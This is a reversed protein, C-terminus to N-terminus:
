KDRNSPCFCGCRYRTEPSTIRLVQEIAESLSLASDAADAPIWFGVHGGEIHSRLISHAVMSKGAGSAGLLVHFASPTEIEKCAQIAARTQVVSSKPTLTIEALYSELSQRALTRLLEPSVLDADIGLHEQRLWQGQPTTDLFDRIRSQELIRVEVHLDPGKSFAETVLNKEPLRNTCLYVVFDATPDTARLSAAETVAKILDGDDKESASKRESARHDFLWKKRLNEPGTVTGAAFVYRHPRSGPVLCFGDLPGPVTKGEPNVGFHIIARCDAELERLARIALIEFQATDTIKEIAEATTM